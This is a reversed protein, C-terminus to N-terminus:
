RNLCAVNIDIRNKMAHRAKISIKMTINERPGITMPSYVAIINNYKSRSKCLITDHM